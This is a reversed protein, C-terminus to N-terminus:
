QKSVSPLINKQYRARAFRYSFASVKEAFCEVDDAISYVSGHGAVFRGQFIRVPDISLDQLEILSWVAVWEPHRGLVVRLGTGYGSKGYRHYRRLAVEM